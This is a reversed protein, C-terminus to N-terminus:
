KEEGLGPRSTGFEAKQVSRDERRKDLEVVPVLAAHQDM